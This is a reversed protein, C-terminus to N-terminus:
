STKRALRGSVQFGSTKSSNGTNGKGLGSGISPTKRLSEALKSKGNTRNEINATWQKEYKKLLCVKNYFVPDKLMESLKTPEIYAESVLKERQKDDKSLKMGLFDKINTQSEKVSKEFDASPEAFTLDKKANSVRDVAEKEMGKILGRVEATVSLAEDELWEPNDKKALIREAAKATAQEQTLGGGMFKAVLRATVKQEDTAKELSRYFKYDDNSQLETDGKVLVELKEAKTKYGKVVEELEDDNTIDKDAYAKFRDYNRATPGKDAAERALKQAPTEKPDPKPKEDGLAFDVFSEDVDDAKSEEKVVKETADLHLPRILGKPAENKKDENQEAM